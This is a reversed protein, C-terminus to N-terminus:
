VPSSFRSNRARRRSQTPRMQPARAVQALARHLQQLAHTAAFDDSYRHLRAVLPAQADILTSRSGAAAHVLEDVNAATGAGELSAIVSSVTSPSPAQTGM